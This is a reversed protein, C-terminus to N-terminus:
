LCSETLKLVPYYTGYHAFVCSANASSVKSYYEELYADPLAIGEYTETETTRYRTNFAYDQDMYDMDMRGGAKFGSSGSILGTAVGAQAPTVSTKVVNDVEIPANM